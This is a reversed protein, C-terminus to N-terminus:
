PQALDWRVTLLLSDGGTDLKGGTLAGFDARLETRRFEAGISWREGVPLSVGALWQYGVHTDDEEHWAPLGFVTGFVTLQSIYIGAGLGVYPRLPGIPHGLKVVAAMGSVTLDAREDVTVFGGSPIGPPTDFEQELYIVDLELSLYRSRQYGLAAAIAFDGDRNTALASSGEPDFSGVGVSVYLPVTDAASAPAAAMALSLLAACLLWRIM